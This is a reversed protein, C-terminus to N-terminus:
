VLSPIRPDCRYVICYETYIHGQSGTRIQAYPRLLDKDVRPFDREIMTWSTLWWLNIEYIFVLVCYIVCSFSAVYIVIDTFRSWTYHHEYSSYIYRTYWCCLICVLEVGAYSLIYMHIITQKHENFTLTLWGINHKFLEGFAWPHTVVDYVIWTLNKWPKLM